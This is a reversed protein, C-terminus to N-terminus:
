FRGLKNLDPRRVKWVFDEPTVPEVVVHHDVVLGVGDVGDVVGPDVLCDSVVSWPLTTKPTISLGTSIVISRPLNTLFLSGISLSFKSSLPPSYNKYFMCLGSWGLQNISFVRM